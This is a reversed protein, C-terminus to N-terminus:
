LQSCPLVTSRWASRKEDAEVNSVNKQMGVTHHHGNPKKGALRIGLGPLITRVLSEWVDSLMSQCSRGSCSMGHLSHLLLGMLHRRLLLPLIRVPHPDHITMTPGLCLTQWHLQGTLDKNRLRVPDNRPFTEQGRLQAAYRPQRVQGKQRVLKVLM